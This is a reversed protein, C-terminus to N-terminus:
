PTYARRLVGPLPLAPKAPARLPLDHTEEDGARSRPPRRERAHEELAAVLDDERAAGALLGRRDCAVPPVRAVERADVEAAGLRDCDGIGGSVDVEDDGGNRAEGKRLHDVPQRAAGGHEAEDLAEIRLGAFPERGAHV